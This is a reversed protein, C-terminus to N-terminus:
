SLPDLLQADDVIILTSDAQALLSELASHILAAPKGVEHVEVLPGFAGFPVAAQTATAKVRVPTTQGLREAIQGALTTKGVGDAGVLVLGRHSDLLEIARDCSQRPVLPWRNPM